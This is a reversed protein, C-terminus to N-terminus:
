WSHEIFYNHHIHEISNTHLYGWFFFTTCLTKAARHLFGPHTKALCVHNFDLFVFSLPTHKEQLSSCLRIHRCHNCFINIRIIPFYIVWKQHVKIRVVYTTWSFVDLQVNYIIRAWQEARDFKQFVHKSMVHGHFSVHDTGSTPEVSRALLKYVCMSVASPDRRQLNSSVPRWIRKVVNLLAYPLEHNHQDVSMWYTSKWFSQHVADFTPAGDEWYIFVGRSFM